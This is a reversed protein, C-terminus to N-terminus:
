SCCPANYRKLHLTKEAICDVLPTAPDWPLEITLKKLFRWVIKWLPQVM